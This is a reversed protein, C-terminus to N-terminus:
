ANRFYVPFIVPEFPILFSCLELKDSYCLDYLITRKKVDCLHVVLQGRSERKVWHFSGRSRCLASM